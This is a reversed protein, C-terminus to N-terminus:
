DGRVKRKKVKENVKEKEKEKEERERGGMMKKELSHHNCPDDQHGELEDLIHHMAIERQPEDDL